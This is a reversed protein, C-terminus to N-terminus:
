CPLASPLKFGVPTVQWTESSFSNKSLVHLLASITDFCVESQASSPAWGVQIFPLIDTHRDQSVFYPSVMFSPIAEQLLCGRGLTEWNDRKFWRHFAFSLDQDAHLALNLESVRLVSARM